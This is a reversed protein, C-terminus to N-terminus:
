IMMRLNLACAALFCSAAYTVKHILNWTPKLCSSVLQGQVLQAMYGQWGSRARVRQSTLLM